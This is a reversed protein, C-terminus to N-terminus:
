SWSTWGSSGAFAGPHLTDRQMLERTLQLDSDM